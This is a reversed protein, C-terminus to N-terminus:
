SCQKGEPDQQFFSIGNKIKDVFDNISEQKTKSVRRRERMSAEVFPSYNRTEINGLIEKTVPALNLKNPNIAEGGILMSAQLGVLGDQFTIREPPIVKDPPITREPM